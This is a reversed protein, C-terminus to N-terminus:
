DGFREQAQRLITQTSTTGVRNAGARVVRFVDDLNRVGGSAKVGMSTPVNARMLELDAVQAGLAAMTGDPQKAYGFGTSTKVFAVELETCVRCLGVKVAPDAIYDNEFIVKLRAQHADCVTKVAGIDERVRDWEGGVAWGVNVVMDIETAGDAIACETEFAKVDPRHSGHPFGIVTCVGISTGALEEACLRVAWPKICVTALPYGRIARLDAIAEAETVSPHLIAHDILGAVEATSKPESIMSM